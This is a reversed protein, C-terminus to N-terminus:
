TLLKRCFPRVVAGLVSGAPEGRGIRQFRLMQEWILYGMLVLTILDGPGATGGFLDPLTVAEVFVAFVLLVIATSKGKASWDFGYREALARQEAPSLLALFPERQTYADRDITAQDLEWKLKPEPGRFPKKGRAVALIEWGLVVPFSGVPQGQMFFWSVVRIFSEILFYIGIVYIIPPIFPVPNVPQVGAGKNMHMAVLAVVCLCGVLFWFIASVLTASAGSVGVENELEKQVEGPLMGTFISTLSFGAAKKQRSEEAKREEDRQRESEEDYDLVTRMTHADNWSMLTYRVGVQLKEVLVVEFYEDLWRICTGPFEKRIRDEQRRAVWGPKPYRCSLYVLGHEGTKLRDTGFARREM